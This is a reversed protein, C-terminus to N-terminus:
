VLDPENRITCKGLLLSSFYVMEGYDEVKSTEYAVVTMMAGDLFRRVSEDDDDNDEDDDDEDEYKHRRFDVGRKELIKM